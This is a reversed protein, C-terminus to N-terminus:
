STAKSNNKSDAASRRAMRCEGTRAARAAPSWAGGRGAVGRWAGGRGAGGSGDWMCAGDCESVGSMTEIPSPSCDCHTGNGPTRAPTPPTRHPPTPHPLTLHPSRPHPTTPNSTYPPATRSPKRNPHSPTLQPQPVSSPQLSCEARQRSSSSTACRPTAHRPTAHRPTAHRPTACRRRLSPM